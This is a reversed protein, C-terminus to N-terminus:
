KGIKDLAKDAASNIADKTKDAAEDAAENVKSRANDAAEDVKEKAKDKVSEAADGVAEKTENIADDGASKIDSVINEASTSTLSNITGGIEPNDGAAAKVKDANDNLWTQVSDLYATATETSTATYEAVNERVETLAEQIKAPDASEVAAQLKEIAAAATQTVSESVINGNDEPAAEPQSKNGCSYCALAMVAAAVIITKKM